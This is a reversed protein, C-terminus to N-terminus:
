HTLHLVMTVVLAAALPIAIVLGIEFFLAAGLARQTEETQRIKRRHM